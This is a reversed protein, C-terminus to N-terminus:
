VKTWDFNSDKFFRFNLNSWDDFDGHGNSGDSFSLIRYKYYYNMCSKYNRYKLWQVTFPISSGLNDNGKHTEVFLGLTGGLQHVTGGIIFKEREYYPNTDDLWQASILFSDFNDWGIFPFNLDPGYDCILGYHFIGKRPNVLSTDLFYDWYLDRLKPFSFGESSDIGLIEEGGGFKGTDVHLSIQNISFINILEQILKNRPKNTVSPATAKIWDIEVFIDKYFPNSGYADTYCEEINNLADGDPDLNNHDDWSLPNFGWKIEWWDPIGDDDSDEGQFNYKNIFIPPNLSDPKGYIALNNSNNLFIPNNMWPIYGIKGMLWNIRNGRGFDFLTPGFISGWWNYRADCNADECYLGYLYNQYINNNILKCFSSIIYIGYRLNQSIKNNSILVDNSNKNILIAFRTNRDIICGSINIFNSSDLNIGMGNHYFVSSIISTDRCKKFFIGGHNESNNSVVNNDFLIASSNEFYCALGNQQYFCDSVETENCNLSTLGIANHSFTCNNISSSISNYNGIGEGNSHFVSKKVKLGKNQNSLIGTRTYYFVCNSVSVNDGKVFIGSDYTKGGSNIISFNSINVEKTVIKVVVSELNGDIITREPNEGILIIEKDIVINELYTGQKVQIIDGSSANCIAQQISTYDAVGDDDVTVIRVNYDENFNSDLKANVFTTCLLIFTFFITILLKFSSM